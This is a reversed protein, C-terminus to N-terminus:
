LQLKLGEVGFLFVSLDHVMESRWKMVTMEDCCLQKSARLIKEAWPIEQQNKDLHLLEIVKYKETTGEAACKGKLLLLATDVHSMMLMTVERNSKISQVAYVANDCYTKLDLYHELLLNTNQYFRKKREKGM